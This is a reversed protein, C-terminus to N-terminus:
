SAHLKKLAAIESLGRHVDDITSDLTSTGATLGVYRCGKFWQPDLDTASQVHHAPTGRSRCTTALKKTNNSNLGGVVVVVDSRNILDDLSRQRDKTPQCITDITELSAHPNKALVKREIAAFDHTCTTTQAMLGLESEAYTEVDEVSELINYRELDGIIGRVEVHNRRGVVLVRRGESHLKTAADHARFVLPCTTDILRKGAAELRHREKESVGHATLLVNPTEPIAERANERVSAFGREELRKLVEENHVLEGHITTAEPQAVEESLALADRVGFCMGLTEARIIEM